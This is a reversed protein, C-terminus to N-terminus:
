LRHYIPSCVYRVMKEFGGKCHTASSGSDLLKEEIVSAAKYVPQSFAKRTEYTLSSTKEQYHKEHGIINPSITDIDNWMATSTGDAEWIANLAPQLKDGIWLTQAVLLSHM